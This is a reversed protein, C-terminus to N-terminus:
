YFYLSTLIHFLLSCKYVESPFTFKHKCLDSHLVTYTGWFILVLVVIDDWKKMYIWLFHFGNDWLFVGMNVVANNVIALTHSCRINRDFISSYIFFIHKEQEKKREWMCVCGLIIWGHSLISQCKCYSHICKYSM